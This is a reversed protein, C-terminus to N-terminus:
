AGEKFPQIEGRALAERMYDNAGGSLRMAKWWECEPSVHAMFVDVARGTKDDMVHVQGKCWPCQAVDYGRLGGIFDRWAARISQLWSM